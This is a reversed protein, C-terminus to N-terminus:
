RHTVRLQSPDVWNGEMRYGRSLYFECNEERLRIGSANARAANWENWADGRDLHRRVIVGAICSRKPDPLRELAPLADLSLTALYPADLHGDHQWRGIITEAVLRDPNLVALGLLMLAGTALTL